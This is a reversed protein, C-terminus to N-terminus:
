SHLFDYQDNKEYGSLSKEEEAIEFATIKLACDLALSGNAIIRSPCGRPCIESYKCAACKEYPKVGLKLVSDARVESVSGMYYHETILSGCPYTDGSPLVVVSKGCAAYCYGDKKVSSNGSGCLMKKAQEIERIIIKKGTLRFVECSRDNLRRLMATVEGGTIESGATENEARGSKRLLDLGIGGVNGLWMAVDVMKHLESINYGSVVSNLNVFIGAQALQRIGGITGATNQRTRENVDPTGDLSVGVSIRHKKILAISEADILVANTQIQFVADFGRNECYECVQRILPLNILPEGGAFQIKLPRDGFRELVTEAIEWPM